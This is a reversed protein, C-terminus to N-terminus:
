FYTGIASFIQKIGSLIGSGFSAREYYQASDPRTLAIVYSQGSQPKVMEGSALLENEIAQLDYALEYQALLKSEEQKMTAIQKSLDVAADNVEVLKAYQSLTLIVLLCVAALGLVAFPAIKGSERVQLDL